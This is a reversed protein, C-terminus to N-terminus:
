GGVIIAININQVFGHMESVFTQIQRSFVTLLMIAAASSFCVAACLRKSLLPVKQEQPLRQMVSAAFGPPAPQLSEEAEKIIDEINYNV